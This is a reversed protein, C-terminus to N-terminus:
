TLAPPKIGQEVTIRVSQFRKAIDDAPIEFYVVWRVSPAQIESTTASDAWHSSRFWNAVWQLPLLRIEFLNHRSTLKTISLDDLLSYKSINPGTIPGVPDVLRPLMCGAGTPDNYPTWSDLTFNAFEFFGNFMEIECSRGSEPETGSITAEKRSHHWETPNGLNDKRTLNPFNHFAHALEHVLTNTLRFPISLHRKKDEDNMRVYDDSPRSFYDGYFTHLIISPKLKGGRPQEVAHDWVGAELKCRTATSAWIGSNYYERMYEFNHANDAYHDRTGKFHFTAGLPQDYPKEHKSM